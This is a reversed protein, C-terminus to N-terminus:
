IRQQHHIKNFLFIIFHITIISHNRSSSIQKVPVSLHYYLVNIPFNINHCMPQSIEPHPPVQQRSIVLYNM